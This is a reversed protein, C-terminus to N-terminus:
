GKRPYPIGKVCKVACNSFCKTKYDFYLFFVIVYITYNLFSVCKYGARCQEDYRCSKKPFLCWWATPDTGTPCSDTTSLM